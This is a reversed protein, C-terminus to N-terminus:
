HNRARPYQHYHNPKSRLGPARAGARLLTITSNEKMIAARARITIVARASDNEIVNKIVSRASHGARLLELSQVRAAQARAQWPPEFLCPEFATFSDMYSAWHSSLLAARCCCCCRARRTCIRANCCGNCRCCRRAASHARDSETIRQRLTNTRSCRPAAAAPRPRRHFM